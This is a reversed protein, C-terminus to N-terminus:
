EQIEMLQYINGDFSLIYLDGNEAVGFASMIPGSQILSVVERASSGAFHISWIKGLCFDGYIYSGALSDLRTGRYVHGGIIACGDGGRHSYEFIPSEFESQGCDLISEPICHIGEMVNWGYNRGAIILDIEEFNNEGVDGVWLQGTLSDFSLRWPNRLGYAWIEPRAEQDGVFPNDIPIAYREDVNARSVDIRLISGLLDGKDQSAGGLRRWGQQSLQGVSEGGGDGLGIYLNGDPGFALSGGNHIPSPQEIELIILQSDRDAKDLDNESVSFRSIVSRRPEHATYYVYFHGNDEYKPDFALGLLGEAQATSNTLDSIDLFMSSLATERENMFSLIRGSQQVVFLRNTGDGAHTLHVMGEFSLNPFAVELSMKPDSTSRSVSDFPGRVEPVFFAEIIILPSVISFTFGLIIILEVILIRYSPNINNYHIELGRELRRPM